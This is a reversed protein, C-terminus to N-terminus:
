KRDNLINEYFTKLNKYVKRRDYKEVVNKRIDDAMPELMEPNMVILKMANYLSKTDGPKVILGSKGDSIIENSGNIDTVICPVGMAGAELVVNPFGERYSPLILCDSALLWPRVDNRGGIWQIAENERIEKWASQHIPDLHTEDWGIMILRTNKYERNLKCFAEILENVGKDGAIRSIFIFTVSNESRLDKASIHLEPIEPNFFGVDVGGLSGYGLVNLPKYTIENALLDYKVGEGEPIIHTAFRCILKDATMLVKKKLGKSTPFVLGTFTHIRVPVRTIWAATMSLLGAKPTVSHVMQPREKHLIKILNWLSKLDKFVSIKREMNVAIGRVGEREVIEDLDKGPSSIAVVEYGEAALEKLLGRCFLNLSLPITSVRIIKISNVKDM